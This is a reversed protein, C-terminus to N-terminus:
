TGSSETQAQASDVLPSEVEETPRAVKVFAGLGRASVVPPAAATQVPTSSALPGASPQQVRIAAVPRASEAPWRNASSAGLGANAPPLNLKEFRGSSVKAPTTIVPPPPSPRRKRITAFEQEDSEDDEIGSADNEVVASVTVKRLPEFIAKPPQAVPKREMAPALADAAALTSTSQTAKASVPRSSEIVTADGAAVRNVKRATADPRAQQRKKQQQKDRKNKKSNGKSREGAVSSVSGVDDDARYETALSRASKKSKKSATVLLAEARARQAAQNRGRLYLWLAMAIILPLWIWSSFADYQTEPPLPTTVTETKTVTVGAPQVEAKVEPKRVDAKADASVDPQTAAPTLTSADQVFPM